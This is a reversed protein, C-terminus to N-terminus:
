LASTAFFIPTIIGFLVPIWIPYLETEADHDPVIVQHPQPYQAQSVQPENEEPKNGVKSLSIFAVCFVLCLIGAIHFKQLRQGYILFDLIATFLPNIAWITTIIGPNVDALASFYFTLIAM